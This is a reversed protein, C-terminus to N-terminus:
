LLVGFGGRGFLSSAGGRRGGRFAPLFSLLPLFLQKLYVPPFVPQNPKANWYATVANIKKKHTHQTCLLRRPCCSSSGSSSKVLSMSSGVGTGLMSSTISGLIPLVSFFVSVLFNNHLFLWYLLMEGRFWKITNGHRTTLRFFSLSFVGTLPPVM